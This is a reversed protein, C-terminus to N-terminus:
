TARTQQWLHPELPLLLFSSQAMRFYWASSLNLLLSSFTAQCGVLHISARSPKGTWTLSQARGACCLVSRSWRLVTYCLAGVSLWDSPLGPVPVAHCVWIVDYM